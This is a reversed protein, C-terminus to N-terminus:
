KQYHKKKLMITGPKMRKRNHKETTFFVRDIREVWTGLPAIPHMLPIRTMLMHHTMRPCMKSKTNPSEPSFENNPTSKM